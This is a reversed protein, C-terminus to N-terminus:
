AKARARLKMLYDKLWDINKQIRKRQYKYKGPNFRKRPNVGIEHWFDLNEDCIDHAPCIICFPDHPRLDKEYQRILDCFGCRKDLTGLSITTWKELSTVTAVILEDTKFEPQSM